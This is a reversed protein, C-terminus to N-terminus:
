FERLTEEVTARFQQLLGNPGTLTLVVTNGQRKATLGDVEIRDAVDQATLREEPVAHGVVAKETEAPHSAEVADPKTPKPETM